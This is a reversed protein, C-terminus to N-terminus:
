FNNQLWFKLFVDDPDIPYALNVLRSIGQGMKPLSQWPLHRRENLHTRFLETKNMPAFRDQLVKALTAYNQRSQNGLVVQALGSLSSALYLGKETEAWENIICEFEYHSQYDNWM